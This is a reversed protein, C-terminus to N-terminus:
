LGDHDFSPLLTLYVGLSEMPVVQLFFVIFFLGEFSSVILLFPLMVV